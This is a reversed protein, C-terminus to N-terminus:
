FKFDSKRINHKTMLKNLQCTTIGAAAASDQVKGHNRALLELLYSREAITVAKRRIDGLSSLSDFPM